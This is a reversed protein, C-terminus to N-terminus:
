KRDTKNLLGLNLAALALSRWQIRDEAMLMLVGRGLNHEELDKSKM